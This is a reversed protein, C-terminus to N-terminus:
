YEVERLGGVGPAGAKGGLETQEISKHVAKSGVEKVEMEDVKQGWAGSM